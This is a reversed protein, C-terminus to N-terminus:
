NREVRAYQICIINWKEKGNMCKNDPTKRIYVAETIQRLMSDNHFTKKVSMKFGQINGDLEETCHTWLLSSREKEQLLREQEKGRTYANCASEGIYRSGCGDCKIEYM